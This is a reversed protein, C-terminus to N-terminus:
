LTSYDVAVLDVLPFGSPAKTEFSVAARAWRSHMFSSPCITEATSMLPNPVTLLETRNCNTGHLLFLLHMYSSIVKNQTLFYKVNEKFQTVTTGLPSQQWDVSYSLLDKSQMFCDCGFFCTFLLQSQPPRLPIMKLYVSNNPRHLKLPQNRFNHLKVDCWSHKDKPNIWSQWYLLLLNLSCVAVKVGNVVM